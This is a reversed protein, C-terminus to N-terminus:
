LWFDNDIKEGRLFADLLVSSDFENIDEVYGQKERFERDSERIENLSDVSDINDNLDSIEARVLFDEEFFPTQLYYLGWYLASVHDDHGVTAKFMGLSVEGFRSLQEITEANHIKLWGNEIYRKLLMLAILKTKKSARTGIEKPETNLVRDCEMEYWLTNAVVGGVDNNEVIMFANNYMESIDKIIAAFDRVDTRNDAFTAVQEIDQVGNIKLVQVVSFDQGFGKSTDVGLIYKADKQPHEFISFRDGLKLEIEHKAILSNLIKYDVLTNASGIFSCNYEQNFKKLGFDKIIKRKWNEDQGPVEWWNVRIPRYNNMGSVAKSYIDYFHNLGNPTSVIVIKADPDRTITPYVSSYFDDAVNDPVFAYEDLYLFNITFGRIATSATSSSLIRTGNELGIATKTFGGRGADIGQQMWMPLNLYASSIRQLIEIATKERNALIAITKHPNFLAYWLIYIGSITTNHSLIGNTWFRKEDSDLTLDFMNEEVNNRQIKEVSEYGSKTFIWDGIHLDKVFTQEMYDGFVIHKDACKLKYNKTHLDWVQYKKTKHFHTIKVWGGDTYVELNNVELSEVFKENNLNVVKCNENKLREYLEFFTLFDIEKTISNRVKLFTDGVVCKGIQRSALVCSFPRPDGDGGVLGKLIRKQYERLVIPQYGRKGPIMFFKEAFYFIDEKAKIYRELQYPTMQIEEGKARLNPNGEYM